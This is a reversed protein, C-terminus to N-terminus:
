RNNQKDGRYKTTFIVVFSFTFIVVYRFFGADITNPNSIEQEEKAPEEEVAEKNDEEKHEPEEENDNFDEDVVEVIKTKLYKAEDKERRDKQIHIQGEEIPIEASDMMEDIDRSKTTAGMDVFHRGKPLYGDIVARTEAETMKNTSKVCVPSPADESDSTEVTAEFVGSNITFTTIPVYYFPIDTNKYQIYIICNPSAYHGGEITLKGSGRMLFVANATKFTLDLDKLIIDDEIYIIRNLTASTQTALYKDCNGEDNIWHGHSLTIKCLDLVNDIIIPEGSITAEASKPIISLVLIAVIALLLLVKRLM